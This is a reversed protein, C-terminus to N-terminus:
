VSILRATLEHFGAEDVGLVGHLRAFFQEGNEGSHALVMTQDFGFRNVVEECLLACIVYYTFHRNVSSRTYATPAVRGVHLLSARASMAQCPWPPAQARQRSASDV